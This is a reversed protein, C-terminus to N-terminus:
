QTVVDCCSHQGQEAPASAVAPVMLKGTMRCVVQPGAPIVLIGVLFCLVTYLALLPRNLM